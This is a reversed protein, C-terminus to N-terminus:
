LGFDLFDQLTFYDECNPVVSADTYDYYVSAVDGLSASRYGCM